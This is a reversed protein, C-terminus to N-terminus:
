YIYKLRVYKIWLDETTERGCIVNRCVIITPLHTLVHTAIVLTMVNTGHRLLQTM